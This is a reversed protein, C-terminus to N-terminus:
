LHRRRRKDTRKFRLRIRSIYADAIRAGSQFSFKFDTGQQGAYIDGEGNLAVLTNTSYGAAYGVKYDVHATPATINDQEISVNGVLKIARSGMNFPHTKFSNTDGGVVTWLGYLVGDSYPLIGNLVYRPTALGSPTLLFGATEDSIYIDGERPDMSMIVDAGTLSGIWEKYGLRQLELKANIRWIDGRSDIFTQQTKDGVHTMPNMLGVDLLQEVEFYELNIGALTVDNRDPRIIGIGHDGYVIINDGLQAVAQAAGKWPIKVFLILGEGVAEIIENHSTAAYGSVLMMEHDFPVDSSGGSPNGIMVYSDDMADDDSSIGRADSFTRRAEWINTWLKTINSGTDGAFIGSLSSTFGCMVLRDNYMCVGTPVASNTINSGNWAATYLDINSIYGNGNTIFWVGDVEIFSYNNGAHAQIQFPPQTGDDDTADPITGSTLLDSGLARTSLTMPFAQMQDPDTSTKTDMVMVESEGVLIRTDITETYTSSIAQTAENLEVLGHPTPRLNYCAELFPEDIKTRADRRLGNTLAEEIVLVEEKM